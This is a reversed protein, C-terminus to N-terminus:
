RNDVSFSLGSHFQDDGKGEQDDAEDPKIGDGHGMARVRAILHRVVVAASRPSLGSLDSDLVM